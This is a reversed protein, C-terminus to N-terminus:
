PAPCSGSAEADDVARGDADFGVAWSHRAVTDLVAAAAAGELPAPRGGSIRVPHVRLGVDDPEVGVTLEFVASDAGEGRATPFAFNGYGHVVWADGIREIGQLVHHHGGVVLDAGAEVWDRALEHQYPDPCRERETGWHVMVVVVDAAAAAAAVAATARGVHPDCTWAVGPRAEPDSASWDCPVHSFGVVGLTRGGVDVLLPAYADDPTRGAGAHLLGGEDLLELTRDLAAKGYDLSHNNALSVGDVGADRLLGVTEPPSRFTFDKPYPTGVDEEAVATELNVFTLDAAALLDAVDGFPDRGALGDVLATDGAFALTFPEPPVTSATGGADGGGSPAPAGDRGAPGDAGPGRGSGGSGGSGCAAVALAASAVLLAATRARRPPGPSPRSTPSGRM